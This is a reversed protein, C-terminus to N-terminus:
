PLGGQIGGDSVLWTLRGGGGWGVNSLAYGSGEFVSIPLRGGQDKIPDQNMNTFCDLGSIPM